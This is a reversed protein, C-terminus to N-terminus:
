PFISYRAITWLIKYGARISGSLTGTIKSVGIRARYSVPVEACRIDKERAAKIQMEVTWGFNRDRMQLRELTIRRIARFPGLDTFHAGWIRRLLWTALWNGFRAQPLLAGQEVKGAKMGLSRSGIVLDAENALLPALLLPMEEPTDSYDADIFVIIDPAHRYAEQLARLCASGYGREEERVVIAGCEVARAATRDTSANDCVIVYANLEPPIRSIVEGISLEENWAPIIVAIVPSHPFFDQVPSTNM